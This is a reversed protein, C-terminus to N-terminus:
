VTVERAHLRRGVCDVLMEQILSYIFLAVYFLLDIYVACYYLTQTSHESQFSVALASQLTCMELVKLSTVLALLIMKSEM